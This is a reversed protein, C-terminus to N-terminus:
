SEAQAFFDRVHPRTMVILELVPLVLAFLGGFLGGVVGGIAGGREAATGGQGLQWLAPYLFLVSVLQGLVMLAVSIGAHWLTLSRGWRRGRVVGVGAAILLIAALTGLALSAYMWAGLFGEWLLEQVRLSGPDRAVFRTILTLPAASLGFVGLACQAIGLLRLGSSPAERPLPVPPPTPPPHFRESDM